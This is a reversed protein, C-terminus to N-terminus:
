TTAKVVWAQLIAFDVTAISAGAIFVYDYGTPIGVTSVAAKLRRRIRNRQVANGTRKGTVLGYRFHHSEGSLRVAVLDGARKRQGNDLVRRFDAPRRLSDPRSVNAVRQGGPRSSREVPGTLCETVSAM